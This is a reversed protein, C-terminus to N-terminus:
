YISHFVKELLFEVLKKFAELKASVLHSFKDTLVYQQGEPQLDWVLEIKCDFLM